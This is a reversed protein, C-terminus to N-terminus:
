SNKLVLCYVIISSLHLHTQVQDKRCRCPSQCRPQLVLYAFIHFFVIVDILFLRSVLLPHSGSFGRVDRPPSRGRSIFGSSSCYAALSLGSRASGSRFCTRPSVTVSLIWQPCFRSLQIDTRRSSNTATFHYLVMALTSSLVQLWARWKMTANPLSM